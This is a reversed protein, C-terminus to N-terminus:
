QVIVTATMTTHITCHYAFTGAKAFTTSFTKGPDLSKSDFSGDDATVTHAATDANTWTVSSGVKVTITSPSFAFNAISVADAAASAPSGASSAAPAGAASAAPATSDAGPAGTATASCAGLALSAAILLTAPLRRSHVPLIRM